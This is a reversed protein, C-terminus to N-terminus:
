TRGFLGSPHRDRRTPPRTDGCTKGANHPSSTGRPARRQARWRVNDYALNQWAPFLRLLALVQNQVAQNKVYKVKTYDVPVSSSNRAKRFYAALIAGEFLTKKSPEPHQIVVHSGPIDKTHLWIHEKNAMEITLIDNQKNNKGRFPPETPPFLKDINSSIPVTKKKRKGEKKAKIYGGEQLEEKIEEIDKPSANEIQQLLGEFYFLEEKAIKLQDRAAKVAHKGKNYKRFYGQANESPTKQPDLPIEIEANNEDYYNQVTISSMRGM